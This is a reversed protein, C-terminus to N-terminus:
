LRAVYKSCIYLLSFMKSDPTELTEPTEPTEPAPREAPTAGCAYSGVTPVLFFFLYLILSM